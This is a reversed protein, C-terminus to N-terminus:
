DEETRILSSMAATLGDVEVESAPDFYGAMWQAAEDVKAFARNPCPQRSLLHIGTLVSRATSAWFGEGAIVTASCRIERAVVKFLDAGLARVEKDPMGLSPAIWSLIGTRGPFRERLIRHYRDSLQLTTSTPTAHYAVLHVLRYSGVRVGSQTAHIELGDSM